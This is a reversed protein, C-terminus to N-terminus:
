DENNERGSPLLNLQATVESRKKVSAQFGDSKEGGRGKEGPTVRRPGKEDM